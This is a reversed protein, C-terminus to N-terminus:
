PLDFVLVPPIPIAPQETQVSYKRTSTNPEACHAQQDFPSGPFAIRQFVINPLTHKIAAASLYTDKPTQVLCLHFIWVNREDFHFNPGIRLISCVQQCCYPMGGGSLTPGHRYPHDPVLSAESTTLARQSGKTKYLAYRLYQNVVCKM